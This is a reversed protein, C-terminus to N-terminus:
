HPSSGTGRQEPADPEEGPEEEEEEEAPMIMAVMPSQALLARLEDPEGALLAAKLPEEIEAVLATLLGSDAGDHFCAEAGVRELLEVVNTM